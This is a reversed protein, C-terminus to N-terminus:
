SASLSTRRSVRNSALPRLTTEPYSWFRRVSSEKGTDDHMARRRHMRVTKPEPVGGAGQPMELCEHRADGIVTAVSYFRVLDLRPWVILDDCLVAKTLTEKM